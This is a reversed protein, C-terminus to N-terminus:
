PIITINTTATRPQVNITGGVFQNSLTAYQASRSLNITGTCTPNVLSSLDWSALLDSDVSFSAYGNDPVSFYRTFSLNGPTAQNDHCNVDFIISLLPSGSPAPDWHLEVQGQSGFTTQSLPQLIPKGALKATSIATISNVREFTVTVVTGASDSNLIVNYYAGHSTVTGIFHMLPQGDIYASLSDGGSLYLDAGSQEGVSLIVQVYTLGDDQFSLTIEAYISSIAIDGSPLPKPGCASLSTLVLLAIIAHVGVRRLIHNM